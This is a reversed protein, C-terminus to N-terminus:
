KKEIFMSFRISLKHTESTKPNIITANDITFWFLENKEEITLMGANDASIYGPEYELKAIQSGKKVARKKGDMIPYTGPLPSHSGNAPLMILMLPNNKSDFIAVVQNFVATKWYPMYNKQSTGSDLRIYEETQQSFASVALFFCLQLFLIKKMTRKKIPNFM